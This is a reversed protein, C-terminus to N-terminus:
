SINKQNLAQGASFRRVCALNGNPLGPTMKLYAFLPLNVKFIQFETVKGTFSGLGKTQRGGKLRATGIVPGGTKKPSSFFDNLIM